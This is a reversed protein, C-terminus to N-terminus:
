SKKKQYLNFLDAIDIDKSVEEVNNSDENKGEKRLTEVQKAWAIKMRADEMQKAVWNVTEEIAKDFEDTTKAFEKFKEVLIDLSPLGASKVEFRSRTKFNSQESWNGNPTNKSLLDVPMKNLLPFRELFVDRVDDEKFGIVPPRGDDPIDTMRSEVLPPFAAMVDYWVPKERLAGTALLARVRSFVTGQLHRSGM